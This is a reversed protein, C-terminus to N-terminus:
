PHITSPPTQHAPHRLKEVVDHLALLTAEDSVEGNKLKARVFPILLTAVVNASIASLTLLLSAHAKDGGTSATILGVPKDMFDATSVTWDLANKLSGPVGFAYEPTCILVADAERIKTRFHQVTEPAVESDDFHPLTGLGDYIDFVVDAPLTRSVHRIITHNSSTARLSGIIVFINTPQM